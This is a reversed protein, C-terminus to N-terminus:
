PKIRKLTKLEAVLKKMKGKRLVNFARYFPLLPLLIKHRYFFPYNAAFAEYRSNKRSIPVFFRGPLYSLKTWGHRQMKNKVRRNMNGYVGSSLIIDLMERDDESLEEGSFLRLALTRSAAEFAAIGLKEAEATVYDMDLTNKQLYVFADLLSRLGTGSSTYHKYAHATMCLYFDEPTLHKEYGEGLLRCPMEQNFQLLERRKNSFLQTHMEFSCVPPKKYVDHNSSGFSRTQFGQKEMIARLDKARQADFLIDHDGMERMGYIPYLYQLVIGKLPMHWIGAEDMAAFIADMEVDMMVNKMMSHQLAKNFRADEVGAAELAPAVTAALMHRSAQAFLADLDMGAVRTRDPETQNVACSVLYILDNAEMTYM